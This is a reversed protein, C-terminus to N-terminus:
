MVEIGTPGNYPISLCRSDIYRSLFGNYACSAATHAYRSPSCCCQCCRKIDELCTDHEIKTYTGTTFISSRDLVYEPDKWAALAWYQCVVQASRRALLHLPEKQPRWVSFSTSILQLLWRRHRHIPQGHGLSRKLSRNTEAGEWWNNVVNNNVADKLNRHLPSQPCYVQSQQKITSLIGSVLGKQRSTEWTFFNGLIQPQGAV